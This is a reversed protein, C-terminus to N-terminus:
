QAKRLQVIKPRISFYEAALQKTILQGDNTRLARYNKELKSPSNGSEQSVQHKNYDTQAMRYSAYSDRLANHRTPLGLEQLVEAFVNEISGRVVIPGKEEEHPTLWEKLNPQLPIIRRTSTKTIHSDLVILDSKFQIDTWFMRPAEEFRVGAFGRLGIWPVLKIRDEGDRAAAHEMIQKLEGPSWVQIRGAPAEAFGVNEMESWDRPLYGRGKAFNLLTSVATRYNKKSRIGLAKSNEDKLGQLWVDVDRGTVMSIQCQFHKQFKGLRSDLDDVWRKSQEEARKKALLETILDRVTIEPLAGHKKVYFHAAEIPSVNGLIRKLEAAEAAVLELSKGTPVILTEARVYSARQDGRMDLAATEGNEIQTFLEGARKKAAEMSALHERKRQGNMYYALLYGDYKGTPAHYVKLVASGKRLEIPKRRKV